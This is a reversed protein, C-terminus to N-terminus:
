PRASGPRRRYVIIEPDIKELNSLVGRFSLLDWRPRTQHRFALVYGLRGTRLRQFFEWSPHGEAWRRQDFNSTTIVYDPAIAELDAVTPRETWTSPFKQPRPLYMRYGVALIREDELVHEKMWHEVEYRSDSAMLVDVSFSYVVTFLFVASVVALRAPRWRSGRATFSALVAGGFLSLTVGESMSWRDYHYLLVSLLFIWFSALPVLLAFLRTNRPKQVLAWVVGIACIVALPWGLSFRLHRFGQAVNGLQGQFTFQYRQERGFVNAPGIVFDAHQLFGDWNFTVNYILALAVAGLGLAGVTRGNVLANWVSVTPDARKHWARASWGIVVPTLLYYSAAQDKTGIALAAAAAFGLYDGLRHHKLVRVFFLMSLQTWFLLPVDVNATKSYYVLPCMTATILAAFVASRRDDFLQRGCAYTLLVTGTGMFASVLRILVYLVTYSTQGRIDILGMWDLAVAPIGVLTLVYYHAPPYVTWWGGSFRQEIGQIVDLPTIEDAAWAGPMNPLGWWIGYINLFLSLGVIAALAHRYNLSFRM